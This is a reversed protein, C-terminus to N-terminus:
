SIPVIRRSSGSYGHRGQIVYFTWSFV